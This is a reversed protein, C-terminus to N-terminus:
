QTLKDMSAQKFASFIPNKNFNFVVHFLFLPLVIALSRGRPGSKDHPGGPSIPGQVVETFLPGSPCGTTTTFALKINNEEQCIIFCPFSWGLM